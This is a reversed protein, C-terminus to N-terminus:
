IRKSGNFDKVYSESVYCLISRYFFEKLIVASNVSFAHLFPSCTQGMILGSTPTTRFIVSRVLLCDLKYWHSVLNVTDRDNKLCSCEESNIFQRFLM